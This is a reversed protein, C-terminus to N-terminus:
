REGDGNAPDYLPSALYRQLAFRVLVGIVAAAPLALLVGVFGFLTGFALLAFIVWVPHLNIRKGVLRPALVNQELVSGLAFIGLVIFFRTALGFQVLGLGVALLLGTLFGLFPVFSLVG